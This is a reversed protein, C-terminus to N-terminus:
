GKRRGRAGVQAEPYKFCARSYKARRPKAGAGEALALLVPLSTLLATTGCTKLVVKAPYM